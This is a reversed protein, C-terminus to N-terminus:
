AVDQRDVGRGQHRELLAGSRRQFERFAEASGARVDMPGCLWRWAMGDWVKWGDPTMKPPTSVDSVGSQFRDIM